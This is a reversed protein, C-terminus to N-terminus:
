SRGWRLGLPSDLWRSRGASPFIGGPRPDQRPTPTAPPRQTKRRGTPRGDSPRAPAFFPVDRGGAGGVGGGGGGGGGGRGVRPLRTGWAANVLIAIAALLLAAVMMDNKAAGPERVVLTNSDLVVAAAVVCLAGMGYPRGICWAALFAIALWGFNLFLSLTDRDTLLIAVAHLLESNQPFAWNVYVTEPYYLGTVSHSQAMEVAFPQHYWLSDFNFIGRNLADVATLGWHAFVLAVAAVALLSMAERGRTRDRSLPTDAAEGPRVGGEGTGGASSADMEEAGGAPPAPHPHRPPAADQKECLGSPSRFWARPSFGLMRDPPGQGRGPRTAFATGVALLVAAAVLTGAYLLQLVGLIEALWILLAVGVIADVLHAPAGEWAPLLRRRLRVASFGLSLALVALLAVSLIYPGAGVM